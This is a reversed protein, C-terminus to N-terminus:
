HYAALMRGAISAWGFDCEMLAHGRVGMDRREAESLRLAQALAVQLTPVDHDIWWGCGECELRELAGRQVRRGLVRFTPATRLSNEDHNNFTEAM